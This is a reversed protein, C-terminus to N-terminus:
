SPKARIIRVDETGQNVFTFTAVAETGAKVEGLDIRAEEVSFTVPASQAGSTAAWVLVMLMMMAACRKM